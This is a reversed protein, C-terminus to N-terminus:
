DSTQESPWDAVINVSSNHSHCLSSLSPKITLHITASQYVPWSSLQSKDIYFSFIPWIPLVVVFPAISMAKSGRIWKKCHKRYRVVDLWTRQTQQTEKGTNGHAKSQGWWTGWYPGSPSLSLWLRGYTVIVCVKPQKILYYWEGTM